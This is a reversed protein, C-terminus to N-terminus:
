RVRWIDFHNQYVEVPAAVPAARQPEKTPFAKLWKTTLDLHVRHVHHNVHNLGGLRLVRHRHSFQTTNHELRGLRLRKKKKKGM